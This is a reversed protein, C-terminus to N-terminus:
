LRRAAVDCAVRPALDQIIGEQWDDGPAIRWRAFRPITAREAPNDALWGRKIALGFSARLIFHVKRVTNGLWARSARERGDRIRQWGRNGDAPVALGVSRRM